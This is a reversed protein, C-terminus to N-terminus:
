AGTSMNRIRFYSCDGQTTQNYGPFVDECGHGTSEMMILHGDIRMQTNECGCGGDHSHSDPNNPNAADKYCHPGLSVYGNPKWDGQPDQSQVVAPYQHALMLVALVVPSALRVSSQRSMTVKKKKTQTKKEKKQEEVVALYCRHTNTTNSPCCM